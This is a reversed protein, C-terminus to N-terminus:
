YPKHSYAKNEKLSLLGSPLQNELRIRGEHTITWVPRDVTYTEMMEFFVGPSWRGDRYPLAITGGTCVPMIEVAFYMMPNGYQRQYRGWGESYQPDNPNLIRTRPFTQQIRELLTKELETGYTNIPHAFYLCSPDAEAAISHVSHGMGGIAFLALFLFLVFGKRM